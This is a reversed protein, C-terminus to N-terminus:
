SQIPMGLPDPTPTAVVSQGLASPNGVGVGSGKAHGVCRRRAALLVAAFAGATALVLGGPEPVLTAGGTAGWNSSILNVDFIDVIGDGNADGAPGPQAWHASVDNVDFINVIGDLNIDGDLTPRATLLLSTPTFSHRLALHGGVNLGTYSTFDGFRSGFTLVTFQNGLAPTFGNILDVDLAGGLSLQGTVLLQDYQTGPTTGGLEINLTSDSALTANGGFSISAPSSGPSVAALFVATGIGTYSGSGNVNGFFYISRGGQIGITGNNTVNGLVDLNGGGVNLKGTNTLGGTRLTGYGNIIGSNALTRSNNDFAGGSLAITGANTSLGQVYM